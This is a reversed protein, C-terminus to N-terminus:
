AALLSRWRRSCLGLQDIVDAGHTFNFTASATRYILGVDSFFGVVPLTENSLFNTSYKLL